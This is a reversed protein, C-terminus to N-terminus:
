IDFAMVRTQTEQSYKCNKYKICYWIKSMINAEKWEINKAELKRIYKLRNSFQSSSESLYQLVSVTNGLYNITQAQLNEM